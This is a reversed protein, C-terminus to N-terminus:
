NSYTRDGVPREHASSIPPPWELGFHEALAHRGTETVLVLRDASGRTIWGQDFLWTAMARGVQGAVHYRRESWDLCPRVVPMRRRSDLNWGWRAAQEWGADTLTMADQTPDFSLWEYAMLAETIHMGLIGALHDYCTRAARLQTQRASGRLSRVPEAPALSLLGEVVRAVEPNALTYYRHRGHRRGQILGGAVLKALHESATAPSIRAARALDSAPVQRGGMLHLLMTARSPDGMLAAVTHLEPDSM